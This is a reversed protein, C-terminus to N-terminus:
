PQRLPEVPLRLLQLLEPVRGPVHRLHRLLDGPRFLHAAARLRGPSRCRSCLPHLLVPRGRVPEDPDTELRLTEHGGPRPTGSHVRLVLPPRLLLHLLVPGPLHRDHVGHLVLVRPAARPVPLLPATQARRRHAGCRARHPAAADHRGDVHHELLVRRFLRLLRVPPRLGRHHPQTQPVASVKEPLVHLLRRLFRGEAHHHRRHGGAHEQPRPAPHGPHLHPEVPLQVPQRPLERRRRDALFLRSQRRPHDPRLAGRPASWVSPLPGHAPDNCRWLPDHPLRHLHPHVRHHVRRLVAPCLPEGLAAEAAQGIGKAAIHGRRAKGGTKRQNEHGYLRKEQSELRNLVLIAIKGREKLSPQKRFGIITFYGILLYLSSGM